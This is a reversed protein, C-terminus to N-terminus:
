QFMKINNVNSFPCIKLSQGSQLEWMAWTYNKAWHSTFDARGECGRLLSQSPKTRQGFPHSGSQIIEWPGPALLHLAPFSSFHRTWEETGRNWKPSTYFLSNKIIPRVGHGQMVWLGPTQDGWGWEWSWNWQLWCSHPAPINKRRFCQGQHHFQVFAKSCTDHCFHFEFRHCKSCNQKEQWSTVSRM